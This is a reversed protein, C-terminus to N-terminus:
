VKDPIVYPSRYERRLMANAQDNDLFTETGPDVNLKEGGLRLSINAYQCLLTSRHGEEIDANPLSGSRISDVFNQKHEPDPFRGYSQAAVVPQRSKPRDFVQWGGGHRGMLMVGETGYLEIRTSNQQWYPFMDNNRVGPDTKLIYPTYLTLEFTMVLNDFEYVAVQSDPSDLVGDEAFRGGTSYVSKPYDKGILWRCLDMQHVGDNIIDGGSYRWFHNWRNHYNANYKAESAPGNWMDWNLTSPPTSDSVAAVNGQYKQNYVRAMHIRGLKGSEIYQKAEFNYPASRNQTGVQVVRDYRRAAEVMKRGEWPTHSVPKEVYVHKGAQCGWITALAHWHDPTAVVIADVSKDDLVRRLDDVTKPTRGQAEEVSKSRSDFFSTDVDALYAVECDDRAAFAPALSSGRGRLGIVGLVIRENASVAQTRQTRAVVSSAAALAAGAAGSKQLFSRRNADAM